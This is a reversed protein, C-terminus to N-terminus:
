DKREREIKALERKAWEYGETGGWLGWAISAASTPDSKPDVSHRAFFSVMRKLTEEPIGKGNSLDRARAVGVETGGRGHEKRKELAKRANQQVKQPPKPNAM